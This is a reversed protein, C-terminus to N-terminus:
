LSFVAIGRGAPAVLTTGAASPQPFSTAGAGVGTNVVQKGDSMRMQVLRGDRTVAFVSDGAIVPVMGGASNHWIVSFRDGEIRLAYNGGGCQLVVFPARFAAAGFAGGGCVRQSFLEGGIGGLPQRLLYGVGDKGIQFVRGGSVPVPALSSEDVDGTSLSKWDKPAWYAQRRLGLSLRIVSNSYGFGGGGGNGTSVLLTGSQQSIGAPAWIGAQPAPNAYSTRGRGSTTTSIVYGHYPGCDGLLGGYPVYIRGGTALLAGRQQEVQRNPPDVNARVAINGNSLRLGFLTHRLGDHLFAVVYIKGDTIVPAATIGSPDINGCPLEGGDVPRGLHRQWLKRGRTTFAYVTNNETAVYIRGNAILPQAYVQGDLAKTFRRALKPHAPTGQAVSARSNSGGFTTWNGSASARASDSGAQPVSTAANSSGSGGCAAVLGLVLAFAVASSGRM